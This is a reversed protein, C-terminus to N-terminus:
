SAKSLPKLAKDFGKRDLKWDAPLELRGFLFSRAGLDYLVDATCCQRLRASPAPELLLCMSCPLRAIVMRAVWVQFAPTSISITKESDAKCLSGDDQRHPMPMLNFARDWFSTVKSQCPAIVLFESLWAGFCKQHPSVTTSEHRTYLWVQQASPAQAHSAM